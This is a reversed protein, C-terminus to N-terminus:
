PECGVSACPWGSGGADARRDACCAAACECEAEPASPLEVACIDLGQGLLAAAELLAIRDMAGGRSLGFRLYGERGLDQLSANPGIQHLTLEPM